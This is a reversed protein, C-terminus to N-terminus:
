LWKAWNTYSARVGMGIHEYLTLAGTRSDTALGGHTRGAERFRRYSEAILARGLGIGRHAGAVALQQIWGENQPGYDFGITVGVIRGDRIVMPSAWAALAEHSGISAHWTALDEKSREPWEGFATEIVDFVEHADHEVDLDRFSYGDPLEPAPADALEIQLIWSVWRREYGNDGFLRAADLRNDTITQNVSSVGQDSAVDWTWALIWSGIGRGRFDPHVDAEARDFYVDAAAALRDGVFIGISTGALDVGPRSWLAQIDRVDIERRGDDFEECDAVLEAVATADAETLPRATTGSPLTLPAAM